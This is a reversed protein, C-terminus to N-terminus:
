ICVISRRLVNNFVHTHIHQTYMGEPCFECYADQSTPSWNLMNIYKGAACAYCHDSGGFPAYVGAPCTQCPAGAQSYSGVACATCTTAGVSVPGSGGPCYLCATAGTASWGGPSCLTCTTPFNGTRENYKGAECSLCSTQGALPQYRGAGCLDCGNVSDSMSRASSYFSGAFCDSCGGASTGTCATDQRKGAACSGCSTCVTDATTTCATSAYKGQGCVTCLACLVEGDSCAGIVRQGPQCEVVGAGGFCVGCHIEGVRYILLLWVVFWQPYMIKSLPSVCERLYVSKECTKM